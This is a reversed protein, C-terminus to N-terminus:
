NDIRDISHKASPSKGMDALFDAFSNRWRECVTIGRGGYSAYDRCNKNYCRNMIRKWCLHEPTGSRGHSFNRALLKDTRLCGCSRVGPRTINSTTVTVEKGCECRCLWAHDKGRYKGAYSVVFLRGFTLGALETKM